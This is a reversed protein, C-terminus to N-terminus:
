VEIDFSKMAKIMDFGGTNCENAQKETDFKKLEGGAMEFVQYVKKTDTDYIFGHDGAKKIAASELRHRKLTDPRKLRCSWFAM